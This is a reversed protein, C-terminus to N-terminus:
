PLEYNLMAPSKMNYIQNGSEHQERIFNLATCTGYTKATKTDIKRKTV